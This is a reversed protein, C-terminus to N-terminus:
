HAELLEDINMMPFQQDATKTLLHELDEPERALIPKKRQMGVPVMGKGGQTHGRTSERRVHHVGSRALFPSAVRKMRGKATQRVPLARIPFAARGNIKNRASIAPRFAGHSLYRHRPHSGAVPSCSMRSFLGVAFRVRAGRSRIQM